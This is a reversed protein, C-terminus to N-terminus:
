KGSSLDVPAPYGKGKLAAIPIVIENQSHALASGKTQKASDLSDQQQKSTSPNPLPGPHSLSADTSMKALAENVQTREDSTLDDLGIGTAELVARLNEVNNSDQHYVDRYIHLNGDEAVITEYRLEVPVAAKLKVEKTETKTRLLSSIESDTLTTGSLGALRKTFERMQATTLGVCGHSAFTGLKSAPKGGHILSPGGIPIKIPGLPNLKSGAEV